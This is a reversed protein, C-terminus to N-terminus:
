ICNWRFFGSHLLPAIWYLKGAVPQLTFDGLEARSGLGPEAGLLKEGIRKAIEADVIIMQSTPIPQIHSNFTSEEINGIMSRFIRTNSDFLCSSWISLFILAFFLLVSILLPVVGFIRFSSSFEDSDGTNWIVGIIGIIGFYFILNWYLGSDASLSLTPMFLYASLFYWLSTFVLLLFIKLKM